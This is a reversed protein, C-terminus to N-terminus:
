DIKKFVLSNLDGNSLILRNSKIVFRYEQQDLLKRFNDSAAMKPCLMRTTALTGFRITDGATQFSGMIENCGDHGGLRKEEVFIELQPLGRSFSDRDLKQNDIEDLVWIDHLRIDAQSTTSTIRQQSKCSYLGAFALLLILYAFRKM